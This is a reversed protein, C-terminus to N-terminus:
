CLQCLMCVHVHVGSATLLSILRTRVLKELVPVSRYLNLHASEMVALWASMLQSDSESPQYDYLAQFCCLLFTVSGTFLLLLLTTSLRCVVCCCRWLSGTFLVIAVDYLRFAVCYLVVRFHKFCLIVVHAQIHYLCRFCQSIIFSATHVYSRVTILQANLDASLVTNKPQAVFMAHLAKFSTSNVLQLLTRCM